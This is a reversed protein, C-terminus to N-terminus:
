GSPAKLMERVNQDMLVDYKRALIAGAYADWFERDGNYPVLDLSAGGEYVFRLEGHMNLNWVPQVERLDVLPLERERRWTSEILDGDRVALRPPREFVAALGGLLLGAILVVWRWPGSVFLQALLVTVAALFAGSVANQRKTGRPWMVIWDDGLARM